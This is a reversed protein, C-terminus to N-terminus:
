KNGGFYNSWKAPSFNGNLIEKSAQYIAKKNVNGINVKGLDVNNREIEFNKLDLCRTLENIVYKARKLAEEHTKNNEIAYNGIASFLGIMSVERGLWLLGIKDYKKYLEEDIAILFTIFESLLHGSFEDPLQFQGDENDNTITNILDSNTTILKGKMLSVLAVIVHPLYYSFLKRDKSYEMANIDKERLLSFNEPAMNKITPILRLFVLELQHKVNVSKHGANLLLMKQIQQQLNLGQWIEIWIYNKVFVDISNEGHDKIHSLLRNFIVPDSNIEKLKSNFSRPTTDGNIIAVYNEKILLFTKWLSVLRHTRQLGDLVKFDNVSLTNESSIIIEDAIIVMIPIHRSTLVTDILKDLYRNSVFGRQVEYKYYDEGVSNIYEFLSVKALYCSAGNENKKDLMLSNM